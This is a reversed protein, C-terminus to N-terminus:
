RPAPLLEFLLREPATGSGAAIRDLRDGATAAPFGRRALEALLADPTTKLVPALTELPVGTLLRAARFAPNGTRPTTLGSYAFPLAAVITVALPVFLTRRRAYGVLPRWNKWMHLVFPALLLLSLWEHMAHFAAPAWRFFLAVGSVASVAFLGVTLPTGNRHAWGALKRGRTPLPATASM